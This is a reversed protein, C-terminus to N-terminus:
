LATRSTTATAGTGGTVGSAAGGAVPSGGQYVTRTALGLDWLEVIGGAGAGGGNGGVGTGFGAGGAGGNGGTVDLANAISSGTRQAFILRIYGGSSGGGGGGGGRNGATAAGGNGGNRGVCTILAPTVNSGRAITRAAIIVTGPSSGSGGGGAGSTADGGGGGGSSGSAGGGVLSAGRLTTVTLHAEWHTNSANVAPATGGAGGSGLGGNGGAGGNVAGTYGFITVATPATGASGAAVGGAGGAAGTTGGAVTAGSVAGGATGATGATAGAGGGGTAATRGMIANAPAASLDLTAAVFVRYGNTILQGTGSITLNNYYTDRNITTTGSSITVDGDAGTGFTSWTDATNFIPSDTLGLNTRATAPSQLDALNRSNRLVGKDFSWGSATRFVRRMGYPGSIVETAAGDILEGGSPTITITNTLSVNGSEDNIMLEQGVKLTTGSPLTVVRPATISTFSILRDTALATYNVDAVPTRGTTAMLADIHDNVILDPM